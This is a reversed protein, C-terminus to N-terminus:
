LMVGGSNLFQAFLGSPPPVPLACSRLDEIAFKVYHKATDPKVHGLGASVVTLPVNEAVLESAYTMRLSHGCRKRGGIDIGSKDFYNRVINAVSSRSFPRKELTLFVFNSDSDNKRVLIYANLAGLTEESLKIKQPNKTKQQVFELTDGCLNDFTMNQIDGSRMGHRLALLIVAYDRKGLKTSLDIAGLLLETEEKTYVSPNRKAPANKPLIGSYDYEVLGNRFLFGFLDRVVKSYSPRNTSESYLEYILQADIQRWTDVGRQKLANLIKSLQTHYATISIESLGRRKLWVKFDESEKAFSEPITHEVMPHRFSFKGDDLFENLRRIVCKSQRLNKPALGDESERKTLFDNGIQPTYETTELELMFESLRNMESAYRWASSQSYGMGMLFEIFEYKLTNKDM